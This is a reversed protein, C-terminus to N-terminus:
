SGGVAKAAKAKSEGKEAQTFKVYGTERHTSLRKKAEEKEYEEVAKTLTHRSMGVAKAAKAKSEGKERQPLNGGRALGKKLSGLQRKRNSISIAFRLQKLYL